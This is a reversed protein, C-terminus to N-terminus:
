LKDGPRMYHGYEVLYSLKKYDHSQLEKRCYQLLTNRANGKRLEAFKQIMSNVKQNGFGLTEKNTIRKVHERAIEANLKECEIVGNYLTQYQGIEDANEIRVIMDKLQAILGAIEAKQVVKTDDLESGEQVAKMLNEVDKPFHARCQFESINSTDCYETIIRGATDVNNCEIRCRSGDSSIILPDQNELSQFCCKFKSGLNGQVVFSKAIFKSFKDGSENFEAYGEAKADTVMQFGFFKQHKCVFSISYGQVFSDIKMECDANDPINLLIRQEPSPPENVDFVVFEGGSTTQCEIVSASIPAAPETYLRLEACGLDLRQGLSWKLNPMKPMAQIGGKGSQVVTNMDRTLEYERLLLRAKEKILSPQAQMLEYQEKAEAGLGETRNPMFIRISGSQGIVCLCMHNDNKFDILHLGSIRLGTDDSRSINGNAVDVIALTGEVTAIAIDKKGGGSYDVVQMGVVQGPTAINWVKQVGDILAISGSAFTIAYKNPGLAALFSVNDHVKRERIAEEGNFLRIMNDNSAALLCKQNDWVIECMASVIDGTVTWFTEEGAFDYGLISCNSGVYIHQDDVVCLASAGDSIMSTFVQTNQDVDFLQVSNDAGIVLAEHDKYKCPMICTIKQGVKIYTKATDVPQSSDYVCIRKASAAAAFCHGTSTLKGVTTLFPIANEHTEYQAIPYM